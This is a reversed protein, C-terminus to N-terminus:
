DKYAEIQLLIKVDDGLIPLGYKMGFDSRKISTVADAGCQAKKAGPRQGCIFRNVTLTVPRTEGRITLEGDLTKLNNGEFTGNPAKFTLTPHNEVDLFDAKRLRVELDELGTDISNADIVIEAAATKAERDLRIRGSTKNFRGRQMSFGYHSVEFTPYTHRPDITYSEPAALAPGAVLGMAALAILRASM